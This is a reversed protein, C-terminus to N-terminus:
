GVAKEFQKQKAFPGASVTKTAANASAPVALAVAAAAVMAGARGQMAEGEERPRPGASVIRHQGPRDPLPTTMCVVVSPGNVTLRRHRPVISIPLLVGASSDCRM